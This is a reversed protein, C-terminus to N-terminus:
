YEIEGEEFPTKGPYKRFIEEETFRTKEGDWFLGMMGTAGNRQKAIILKAETSDRNKRHLLMVVDANQEISGSGRLDSLDPLKGRQQDKNGKDAERSLQSLVIVPVDLEGAIIKLQRTITDLAQVENDKHETRKILQLYDVIILDLGHERRMKQATSMIDTTSQSFSDSIYMNEKVSSLCESIKKIKFEDVNGTRLDQMSIGTEGAMPRIALQSPKMELSFYLVKHERRVYDAINMAFSTKGISSRAGIVILEGKKLGALTRDLRAFGTQLGLYKGQKRAEAAAVIETYAEQYAGRLSKVDSKKQDLEYIENCLENAIEDIDNESDAAATVARSCIEKFKRRKSKERIIDIHHKVNSTSIVGVILDSIYEVTGATAKKQEELKENVTILDPSIGNAVLESIATFLHQHVLGSFDEQSLSALMEYTCDVNALAAGLVNREAELNQPILELETTM